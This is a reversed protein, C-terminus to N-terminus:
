QPRCVVYLVERVVADVVINFIIPSALDGQTVGRRTGFATWLFNGAKPVIRQWKWYINLIQDLNM